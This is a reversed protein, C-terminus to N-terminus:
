EYAFWTFSLGVAGTVPLVFGNTMTATGELRVYYNGSGDTTFIHAYNSAGLYYIYSTRAVTVRIADTLDSGLIVVLSPSFSLGTVTIRATNISTNTNSMFAIGGGSTATGSAWKKEGNLPILSGVVGFIDRGQRINSEILDTDGKIIGGSYYGAPIGQDTTGPTITPAGRNPMTGTQGAITTGTLVNATPVIVAAVKGDGAAGGYYGQPITQDSGSPTIVTGSGVKNAMIGIQGPGSDNSFTKGSLVDGHQANGSGRIISSIKGALATMTESALATVGKATLNAAMTDKITQLKTKIQPFTDGSTVPSGVVSAIDTKGSNAQQFAQDAKDMAEKIKTDITDMNGNIVAIDATDSDTPKQLGYNTTTTPM